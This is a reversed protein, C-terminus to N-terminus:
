SIAILNRSSQLSRRFIRGPISSFRFSEFVSVLKKSFGPIDQQVGAALQISFFPGFISCNYFARAATPSPFGASPM